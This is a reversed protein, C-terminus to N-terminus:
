APGDTKGKAITMVAYIAFGALGFAGLIVFAVLGEVPLSGILKSIQTLENM